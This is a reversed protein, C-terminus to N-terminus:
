NRGSVRRKERSELSEAVAERAVLKPDEPRRSYGLGEASRKGSAHEREKHPM